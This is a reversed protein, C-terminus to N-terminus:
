TIIRQEQSAYGRRGFLERGKFVPRIVKRGPRCKLKHWCFDGKRCNFLMVNKEMVEQPKLRRAIAPGKGAVM